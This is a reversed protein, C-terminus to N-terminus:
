GECYGGILESLERMREKGRVRPKEAFERLSESLAKWETDWLRVEREPHTLCYELEEAVFRNAVKLLLRIDKKDFELEVADM